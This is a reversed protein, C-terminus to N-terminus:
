AHIGSAMCERGQLERRADWLLSPLAAMLFFELFSETLSPSVAYLQTSDLYTLLLGTARTPRERSRKSGCHIEKFSLGTVYNKRDDM